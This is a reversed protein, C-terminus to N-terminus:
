IAAGAHTRGALRKPRRRAIKVTWGEAVPQPQSAYNTPTKFDDKFLLKGKLALQAHADATAVAIAFGLALQVFHRKTTKM